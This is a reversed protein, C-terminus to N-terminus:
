IEMMKMLRIIGGSVTTQGMTVGLTQKSLHSPRPPTLTNGELSAGVYCYKPLNCPIILNYMSLVRFRLQTCGEFAIKGPPM